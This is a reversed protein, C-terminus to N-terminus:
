GQGSDFGPSIRTGGYDVVDGFGLRGSPKQEYENALIWIFTENIIKGSRQLSEGVCMMFSMRRFFM